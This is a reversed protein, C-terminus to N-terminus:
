WVSRNAYRIYNFEAVLYFLVVVIYIIMKHICNLIKLTSSIGALCPKRVYNKFILVNEINQSVIMPSNAEIVAQLEAGIGLPLPM